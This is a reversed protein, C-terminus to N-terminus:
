KVVMLTAKMGPHITCEYAITGAATPTYSFTGGKGFAKSEFKAGSDAIVNHDVDDENTWTVKQGLKVTAQKPNFAIDKLTIAVTGSAPKASSPAATTAPAPPTAATSKATDSSSSDSGCGAILAGSLAIAVVTALVTLVRPM